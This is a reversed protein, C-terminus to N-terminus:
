LYSFALYHSTQLANKKLGVDKSFSRIKAKNRSLKFSTLLLVKGSYTPFPPPNFIQSVKSFSVFSAKKM